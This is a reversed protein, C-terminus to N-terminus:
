AVAKPNKSISTLEAAHFLPLRLWEVWEESKGKKSVIQVIETGLDELVSRDPHTGEDPLFSNFKSCTEDRSM